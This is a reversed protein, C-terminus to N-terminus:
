LEFYPAIRKMLYRTSIMEFEAEKRTFRHPSYDAVIRARKLRFLKDRLLMWDSVNSRKLQDCIVEITYEHSGIQPVASQSSLKAQDVKLWYVFRQFLGYYARSVASDYQEMEFLREALRSTAFAKQKLEKM